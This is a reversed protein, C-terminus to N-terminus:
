IQFYKEKIRKIKKKILEIRNEEDTWSIVVQSVNFFDSKSIFSLVIAKTNGDLNDKELEFNKIFSGSIAVKDKLNQDFYKFFEKFFANSLTTDSLVICYKLEENMETIVGFFNNINVIKFNPLKMKNTFKLVNLRYKDSKPFFLGSVGFEEAELVKTNKYNSGSIGSTYVFITEEKPPLLLQKLIDNPKLDNLRAKKSAKSFKNHNNFKKSSNTIFVLSLEPQSWFELEPMLQSKLNMLNEDTDSTFFITNVKSYKERNKKVENTLKYWTKCVMSCSCLAKFPLYAFIKLLSIENDVM